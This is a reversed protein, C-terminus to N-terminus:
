AELAERAIQVMEDSCADGDEYEGVIRELASRYKENEAQVRNLEATMVKGMILPNHLSKQVLLERQLKMNEAELKNIKKDLAAFSGFEIHTM